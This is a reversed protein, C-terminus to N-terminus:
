LTYSSNGAESFVQVTFACLFIIQVEVVKNEKEM